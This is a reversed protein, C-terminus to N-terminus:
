FGSSSYVENIGTGVGEFGERGHVTLECVQEYRRFLAAGRGFGYARNEGESIGYDMWADPLAHTSRPIFFMRNYDTWYRPTLDDHKATALHKSKGKSVSKNYSEEGHEQESDSVSDLDDEEGEDLRKLYESRPIPPQRHENM